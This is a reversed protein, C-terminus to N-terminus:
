RAKCSSLDPFTESSGTNYISSNSAHLGKQPILIQARPLRFGNSSKQCYSSCM